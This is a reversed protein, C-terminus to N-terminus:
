PSNKLTILTLPRDKSGKRCLLIARRLINEASYQPLAELNTRITQELVNDIIAGEKEVDKPTTPFSSLFFQDGANWPRTIEEFPSPTELGLTNNDSVVEELTDNAASYHWLSGYGCSVYSYEKENPRLILYSLPFQMSGIDKVLIENLLTVLEVPRTTLRCLARVMGRLIATDMVGKAGQATPEALIVGQADGTIDLFDFYSGSISVGKYHAIGVETKPWPPAISPTLQMQVLKLSLSLETLHDAQRKREREFTKSDLYNSIDTIFDVVDQYRKKPDPQLAKALIKHIGKPMLSLHLKGLSLKGLILEYAIIGLSYIDSPYSVEGPASRQEPSMYIPTGILLQKPKEEKGKKETLLQAVGFDIVKIAGSETILVNEPKVDRHIVGHTHLHCLAYAIDLVIELAHKLSIPNELLYERLSIGRLYEMAIYLGGEWEGQGYLKVINPHDTMGIISAENLFRQVMSANSLYNKPLTKIAAPGRTEPHIGLYILSMEGKELLCEVEYPGIIKPIPLDPLLEGDRPHTSEQESRGKDM